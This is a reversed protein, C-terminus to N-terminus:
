AFTSLRHVQAPATIGPVVDALTVGADLQKTLGDRHAAIEIRTGESGQPLLLAVANPEIGPDAFFDASNTSVFVQRRRARQMRWILPALRKVLGAHLSLEPEELLLLSDGELLSWLLGILRLTGDSFQDERQHGANPRWHKYTAELHPVGREDRADRLNALEPVALKLAEEIKRLRIKRTRDPTKAIRELFGIGFPDDAVADRNGLQPFKLLQPVLHLYVVEQFTQAIGRFKQNANIQELHTQTLRMSDSKDDRDPRNLLRQDDRIVVEKTLLARRHGKDEQRLGIEYTWNSGTHDKLDLQISIEPSRRAALCHIKSLGGRQQVAYQLGGGTKAIDRMFRFVDLLNSKGSANPGALFLREGIKLDVELFNRWNKLVLRVIQM